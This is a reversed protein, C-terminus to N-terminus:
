RQENDEDWIREHMMAMYASDRKFERVWPLYVMKIEYILLLVAMVAGCWIIMLRLPDM